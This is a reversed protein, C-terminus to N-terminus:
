DCALGEVAAAAQSYADAVAQAFQKDREGSDRGGDHYVLHLAENARPLELRLMQAFVIQMASERNM